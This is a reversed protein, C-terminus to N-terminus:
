EIYGLDRLSERIGAEEEASYESSPATAAGVAAGRRVPNARLFDPEFAEELVRGDVDEPVPLALAHLMTPAVVEVRAGQVATGARFVGPGRLTLLGEPLHDGSRRRMVAPPMADFTSDPRTNTRYAPANLFVIDPAREVHPGSYVEERRFVEAVAPGGTAPDRLAVLERMIEDRLREYEAGPEVIGFPQRGRVNLAIGGGKSYMEIWYARTRSWDVREGDARARGVLGGGGGRGRLLGALGVRDALLRALRLGRRLVV